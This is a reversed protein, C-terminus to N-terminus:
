KGMKDDEESGCLDCYPEDSPPELTWSSLESEPCSKYSDVLANACGGPLEGLQKWPKESSRANKPADVIGCVGNGLVASSLSERTKDLPARVGDISLWLVSPSKDSSCDDVDEVAGAESPELSEESM